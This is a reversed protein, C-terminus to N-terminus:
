SEGGRTALFFYGSALAEGQPLRLLCADLLVLPALVWALGYRLVRYVRDIGLSALTAMLDKAIWFLAFGPGLHVGSEVVRLGAREIGSAFGNRTWRTYDAPLDHAPQLFPVELYFRGDPKLARSAARLFTEPDPVHEVVYECFIADFSQDAFPLAYGDGVVQPGTAATVDLNVVGRLRCGGSGLNLM